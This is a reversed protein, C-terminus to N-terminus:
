KKGPGSHGFRENVEKELRRTRRDLNMLFLVIGALIVLLVAIVVFLKNEIM